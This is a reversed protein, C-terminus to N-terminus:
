GTFGISSSPSLLIVCNDTEQTPNEPYELQIKNWKKMSWWHRAFPVTAAFWLSAEIVMPALVMNAKVLSQTKLGQRFVYCYVVIRRVDKSQLVSQMVNHPPYQM